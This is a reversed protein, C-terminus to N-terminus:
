HLSRKRPDDKPDGYIIDFPKDGHVLFMCAAECHATYALKAPLVFLGHEGISVDPRGERGIVMTGTMMVVVVENTHLHRPVTYKAPFKGLFDYDGKAPDGRLVAGFAGPPLADKPKWHADALQVVPMADPEAHVVHAALVLLLLYRM